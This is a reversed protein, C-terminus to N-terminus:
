ELHMRWIYEFVKEYYKTTCLGSEIRQAARGRQNHDREIKRFKVLYFRGKVRRFNSNPSLLSSCSLSLLNTGSETRNSRSSHFMLRVDPHTMMALGRTPNARQDRGYDSHNVVRTLYIPPDVFMNYRQDLIPHLCPFHCEGIPM